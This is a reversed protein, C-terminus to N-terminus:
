NRFRKTFLSFFIRKLPPMHSLYIDLIRGKFPEGSSSFARNECALDYKEFIYRYNETQTHNGRYFQVTESLFERCKISSTTHEAFYPLFDPLLDPCHNFYKLIDAAKDCCYLLLGFARTDSAFAGRSLLSRLVLKIQAECSATNVPLATLLEPIDACRYATKGPQMSLCIDRLISVCTFKDAQQKTSIRLAPNLQIDAFDHPDAATLDAMEMIGTVIANYVSLVAPDDIVATERSLSQTMITIASLNCNELTKLEHCRRSFLEPFLPHKTLASYCVRQRLYFTFLLPYDDAEALCYNMYGTFLKNDTSFHEALVTVYLDDNEAKVKALLKLMAADSENLAVSALATIINACAATLEPKVSLACVSTLIRKDPLDPVGNSALTQLERGYCSLTKQIFTLTSDDASAFILCFLDLLGSIGHSLPVSSDRFASEALAILDYIRLDSVFSRHVTPDQMLTGLLSFLRSASTFFGDLANHVSLNKLAYSVYMSNRGSEANQIRANKLDFVCDQKTNRDGIRHIPGSEPLLSADVFYIRIGSNTSGESFYTTYSMESRLAPPMAAFLLRMLDRANRDIDNTGCSLSIFIKRSSTIAAFLSALLAAFLGDTLGTRYFITDKDLIYGPETCPISELCPLDSSAPPECLFGDAAVLPSINKFFDPNDTIDVIYNHTLFTSRGEDTRYVSQGIVAYRDKVAVFRVKPNKDPSNPDIKKYPVNYTCLSEFSSLDSASLGSSSAATGFGGGENTGPIRTYIQQEIM